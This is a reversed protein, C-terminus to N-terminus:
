DTALFAKVRDVYPTKDYAAQYAIATRVPDGFFYYEYLAQRGAFASASADWSSPAPGHPCHAGREGFKGLFRVRRALV